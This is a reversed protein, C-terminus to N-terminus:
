SKKNLTNKRANKKTRATINIGNVLFLFISKKRGTPNKDTPVLKTTSNLAVCFFDHWLQYSSIHNWKEYVFSYIVVLTRACLFEPKVSLIIFFHCTEFNSDQISYIYQLYFISHKTYLVLYLVGFLAMSTFMIGSRSSICITLTYIHKSELNSNYCKAGLEKLNWCM